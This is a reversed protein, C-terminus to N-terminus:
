TKTNNIDSVVGWLTPLPNKSYGLFGEYGMTKSYNYSVIRNNDILVFM